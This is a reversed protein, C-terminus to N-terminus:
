REAEGKRLIQELLRVTNADGAVVFPPLGDYAGADCDPSGIQWQLEIASPSSLGAPPTSLVAGRRDPQVQLAGDSVSAISGGCGRPLRPMFLQEAADSATSRLPLRLTLTGRWQPGGAPMNPADFAPAGEVFQLGSEQCPQAEDGLPHLCVEFRQWDIRSQTLILVTSVRSSRRVVTWNSPLPHPLDATALTILIAREASVAAPSPARHAAGIQRTGLLVPMGLPTKLGHLMHQTDWGRQDGLIHAVATLDDVTPMREDAATVALPLILALAFPAAPEMRRLLRPLREGRSRSLARMLGRVILALPLAAAIACAAKVHALYKGNAEVGALPALLFAALFPVLVALAGQSRRRLEIWDGDRQRFSLGWACVAFAAWFVLSAGQLRTAPTASMPQSGQLVRVANSLWGSPAVVFTALAFLAAGFVALQLRRRPALLALWVVSAGTLICALHVNAMTAGVLAALGVTLVGPQEAAATCVLVFVAGLFLLPSTNYLAQTQVTTTGIQFMLLWVATVGALRGGLMTALDYVLALALANAIQILVHAGDLGIGLRALLSLFELWGVAHFYGPISTGVGTLTCSGDTICQRVLTQDNFTDSWAIPSTGAERLNAALAGLFIATM